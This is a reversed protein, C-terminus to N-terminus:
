SNTFKWADESWSYKYRADYPENKCYWRKLPVSLDQNLVKKSIIGEFVKYM